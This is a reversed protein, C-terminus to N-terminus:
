RRIVVHPGDIKRDLLALLQGRGAAALPPGAVRPRAAGGPLRDTVCFHILGPLARTKGAIAAIDVDQIRARRAPGSASGPVGTAPSPAM